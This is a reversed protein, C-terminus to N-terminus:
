PALRLRSVLIAVLVIPVAEIITGVIISALARCNSFRHVEAVCSVMLVLSWASAILYLTSICCMPLFLIPAAELRATTDVLSTYGFLLFEPIRLPLALIDPVSSWAMAARVHAPPAKGSFWRGTWTLVAGEAFLYAVGFGAAAIAGMLFAAWPSADDWFRKGWALSLGWAFARVMSLAIVWHWPNFDVIARITQRPHTWIRLWPRKPLDLFEIATRASPAAPPAAPDPQEEPPKADM